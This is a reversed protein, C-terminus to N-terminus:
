LWWFQSHFEVGEGVIGGKVIATTRIRGVLYEIVAIIRKFIVPIGNMENEPSKVAQRNGTAIVGYEWLRGNGVMGGVVIVLM